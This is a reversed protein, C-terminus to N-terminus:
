AREIKSLADAAANCVDGNDDDILDQLRASAREAAPGLASLAKCADFRTKWDASSLKEILADVQAPDVSPRSSGGMKKFIDKFGM